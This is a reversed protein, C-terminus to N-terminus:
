KRKFQIDNSALHGDFARKKLGNLGSRADEVSDLVSENVAIVCYVM